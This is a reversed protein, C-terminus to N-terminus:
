EGDLEQLLKEKADYGFHVGVDRELVQRLAWRCYDDMSMSKVQSITQLVNYQPESMKIGVYHEIAPSRSSKSM